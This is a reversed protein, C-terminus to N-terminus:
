NRYFLTKWNPERELLNQYIPFFTSPLITTKTSAIGIIIPIESCPLWQRYHYIINNVQTHSPRYEVYWSTIAIFLYLYKCGPYPEQGLQFMEWVFVGYSWVDSKTSAQGSNLIELALWKMPLKMNTQSKLSATIDMYLRKSLGFDSIKADLNDTLLVNRAALDGHYINCRGLFEM